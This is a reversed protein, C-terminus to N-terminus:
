AVTAISDIIDIQTQLTEKLTLACKCGYAGLKACGLSNSTKSSAIIKESLSGSKSDGQFLVSANNPWCM